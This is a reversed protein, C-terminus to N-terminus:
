RRLAASGSEPGQKLETLSAVFREVLMATEPTLTWYGKITLAGIADLREPSEHQMLNMELYMKVRESKM